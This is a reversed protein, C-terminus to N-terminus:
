GYLDIEKKLEDFILKIDEASDKILTIIVKYVLGKLEKKTFISGSGQKIVGDKFYKLKVEGWDNKKEFFNRSELFQLLEGPTYPDKTEHRCVLSFSKAESMEMIFKNNFKFLNKHKNIRNEGKNLRLHEILDMYRFTIKEELKIAQFIGVDLKATEYFRKSLASVCDIYRHYDENEDITKLLNNLYRVIMTFSPLGIRHYYLSSHSLSSYLWVGHLKVDAKLKQEGDIIVTKPTNTVNTSIIFQEYNEYNEYNFSIIDLDDSKLNMSLDMSELDNNISKNKLVYQIDEMVESLSIEEVQEIDSFYKIVKVKYMVLSTEIM